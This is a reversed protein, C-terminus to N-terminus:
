QLSMLVSSFTCLLAVFSTGVTERNLQSDLNFWNCNCEKYQLRCLLSKISTYLIMFLWYRVLASSIKVLTGPLVVLPCIDLNNLVLTLM